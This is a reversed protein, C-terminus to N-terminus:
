RRGHKNKSSKNQYQPRPQYQPKNDKTAPEESSTDDEEKEEEVDPESDNNSEENVAEETAIEGSIFVSNSPMSVEEKVEEYETNIIEPPNIDLTEQHTVNPKVEYVEKIKDEPKFIIEEKKVVVPLRNDKDYNALTLNIERGDVIEKVISGSVLCKLIDKTDLELPGHYGFAKISDSLSVPMGSVYLKVRKNM